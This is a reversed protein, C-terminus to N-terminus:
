VRHAPANRTMVASHLVGCIKFDCLDKGEAKTTTQTDPAQTPPAATAPSETQKTTVTIIIVLITIYFITKLSVIPKDTPNYLINQLLYYTFHKM